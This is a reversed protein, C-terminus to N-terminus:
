ISYDGTVWKQELCRRRKNKTEILQWPHGVITEIDMNGGHFAELARIYIMEIRLQTSDYFRISRLFGLWLTLIKSNYIFIWIWSLLKHIMLEYATISIPPPFIIINERPGIYVLFKNTVRVYWLRLSLYINHHVQSIREISYSLLPPPYQM